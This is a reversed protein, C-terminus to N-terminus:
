RRKDDNYQGWEASVKKRRAIVAGDSSRREANRQRIFVMGCNRM